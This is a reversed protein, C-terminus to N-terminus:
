ACRTGDIRGQEKKKKETVEMEEEEDENEELQQEHVRELMKNTERFCKLEFTGESQMKELALHTM